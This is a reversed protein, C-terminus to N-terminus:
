NNINNMSDITISLCILGGITIFCFNIIKKSITLEKRNKFRKNFMLVPFLIALFFTMISGVLGLFPVFSPNTLVVLVVILLISIRLVINAVKKLQINNEIKKLVNKKYLANCEIINYIPFHNIPFSLFIFICYIVGLYFYFYNNVRFNYFFIENDNAGFTLAGTFGFIFYLIFIFSCVIIYLKNFKQKNSCTNRLPVFLGIGEISYLVIGLFSPFNSMNKTYYNNRLDSTTGIDWINYIIFSVITLIICVTCGSSVVSFNELRHIMVIPLSLLGAVIIISNKHNCVSRINHECFIFHLFDTAFILSAISISFQTFVILLKCVNKFFRGLIGGMLEEYKNGKFAADDCVKM